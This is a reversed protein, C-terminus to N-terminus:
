GRRVLERARELIALEELRQAIAADLDTVPGETVDITPMPPVTMARVPRDSVAGARARKEAWARKMRAKHAARAEDSWAGMTGEKGPPACDALPNVKVPVVVAEGVVATPRWGCNVCRGEVGDWVVLGGCRACSM